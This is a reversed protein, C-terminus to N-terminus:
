QIREYHTSQVLNKQVTWPNTLSLLLPRPRQDKEGPKWKGLRCFDSADSLDESLHNLVKEVENKDHEMTRLPGVKENEDKSLYDSIGAIKIELSAQQKPYPINNKNAHSNISPDISILPISKDNLENISARIEEIIKAIELKDVSLVKKM